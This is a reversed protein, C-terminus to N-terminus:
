QESNLQRRFEINQYEVLKSPNAIAQKKESNLIIILGIKQLYDITDYLSRTKIGTSESTKKMDLFEFLKGRLNTEVIYVFLIYQIPSLINLLFPMHPIRFEVTESIITQFDNMFNHVLTENIFQSNQFSQMSDLISSGFGNLKNMYDFNTNFVEKMKNLHEEIAKQFDDNLEMNDGKCYNIIAEKYFALVTNYYHSLTLNNYCFKIEIEESEEFKFLDLESEYNSKMEIITDIIIKDNEKFINDLRILVEDLKSIDNLNLISFRSEIIEFYSQFIKLVSPRMKFHILNIIEDIDNNENPNINSFHCNLLQSSYILIHYNFLKPIKNFHKSYYSRFLHGKFNLNLDDNIEYMYINEVFVENITEIINKTLNNVLEEDFDEDTYKYLLEFKQNYGELLKLLEALDNEYAIRMKKIHIKQWSEFDLNKNVGKLLKLVNLCIFTEFMINQTQFRSFSILENEIFLEIENMLKLFVKNVKEINKIKQIRFIEKNFKLLIKKQIEFIIIKENFQKLKHNTFKRYKFPIVLGLWIRQNMIKVFSLPAHNILENIFQLITEIKIILQYDINTIFSFSDNFKSNIFLILEDVIENENIKSNKSADILRYYEVIFTQNIWVKLMILLNSDIKNNQDDSYKISVIENKILTWSSFKYYQNQIIKLVSQSKILSNENLLKNLLLSIHFPFKILEDSYMLLKKFCFRQFDHLFDDVKKLSVIKKDEDYCDEITNKFKESASNVIENLIRNNIKDM